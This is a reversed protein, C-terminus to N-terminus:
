FAEGYAIAFLPQRTGKAVIVLNHQDDDIAVKGKSGAGLFGDIRLKALLKRPTLDCVSIPVSGVKYWNNWNWGSPQRWADISLINVETEPAEVKDAESM